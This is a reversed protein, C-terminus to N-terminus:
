KDIRQDMNFIDKLSGSYRFLANVIDNIGIDTSGNLVAILMGVVLALIGALLIVSERTIKKM